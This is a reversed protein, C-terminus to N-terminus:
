MGLLRAVWTVESHAILDFITFFLACIVALKLLKIGILM